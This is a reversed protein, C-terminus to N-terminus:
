SYWKGIKKFIDVIEKQGLLVLAECLLDDADIHDTEVDDSNNGNILLLKNKIEKLRVKVSIKKKDKKVKIGCAKLFVDKDFASYIRRGDTVSTFYLTDVGFDNTLYFGPNGCYRFLEWDEQINAKLLEQRMSEYEERTCKMAIKEM